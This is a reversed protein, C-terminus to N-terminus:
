DIEIVEFNNHEEGDKEKNDSKSAAIKRKLFGLIFAFLSFIGSLVNAIIFTIHSWDPKKFKSKLYDRIESASKETSNGIFYNNKIDLWAQKLFNNGYKHHKLEHKKIYKHALPYDEKLEKDLVIKETHPDYFNTELPENVYVIEPDDTM